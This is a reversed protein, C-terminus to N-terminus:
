PSVTFSEKVTNYGTYTVALSAIGAPVNDFRFSGDSETFTVQNTDQLRVEANRVYEKSVPNYVRGQVTGTGIPSTQANAFPAAMLALAAALRFLIRHPPAIM